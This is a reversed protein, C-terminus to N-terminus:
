ILRKQFYTRLSNGSHPPHQVVLLIRDGASVSLSQEALNEWEVFLGSALSCGLQINSCNQAM